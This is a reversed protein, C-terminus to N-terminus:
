PLDWIAPDFASADDSRTITLDLQRRSTEHRYRVRADPYREVWELIRGGDVRELRRLTDRVFTLRWAVPVAIDARLTDGDVRVVTDRAPPVAVKGLAGWLLPAPPVLRRSM